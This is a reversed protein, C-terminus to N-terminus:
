FPKMAESLFNGNFFYYILNESLRIKPLVLRKVGSLLSYACEKFSVNQVEAYKAYKLKITGSLSHINTSLTGACITCCVSLHAYESHLGPDM